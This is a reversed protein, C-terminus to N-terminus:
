IPYCIALLFIRAAVYLRFYFYNYALCWCIFGKVYTMMMVSYTSLVIKNVKIIAIRM